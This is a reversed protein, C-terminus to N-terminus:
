EEWRRFQSVEGGPWTLTLTEEGYEDPGLTWRYARVTRPSKGEVECRLVYLEVLEAFAPSEASM